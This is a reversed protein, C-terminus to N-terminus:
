YKCILNLDVHMIQITEASSITPSRCCIVQVECRETSLKNITKFQATTQLVTKVGFSNQQMTWSNCWSTVSCETHVYNNGTKNGRSCLLQQLSDSHILLCVSTAVLETWVDSHLLSNQQDQLVSPLHCMQACEVLSLVGHCRWPM